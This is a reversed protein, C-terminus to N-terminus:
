RRGPRSPDRGGGTDDMDPPEVPEEGARTLALNHLFFILDNIQNFLIDIAEAFFQAHIPTPRETETIITPARFSNAAGIARGVGASVMRGPSRIAVAGSGANELATNGPMALQAHASVSILLVTLAALESIKRHCPKIM